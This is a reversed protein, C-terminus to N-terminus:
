YDGNRYSCFLMEFMFKQDYFYTFFRGIWKVLRLSYIWITLWEQVGKCYLIRKWLM